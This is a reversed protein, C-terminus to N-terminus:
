CRGSPLADAIITLAQEKAQQYATADACRLHVEDIQVVAVLLARNTLNDTSVYVSAHHPGAELDIQM